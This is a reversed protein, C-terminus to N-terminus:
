VKHIVHMGEQMHVFLCLELYEETGCHVCTRKIKIWVDEGLKTELVSMIFESSGWLHVPATM